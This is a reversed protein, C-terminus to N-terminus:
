RNVVGMRASDSVDDLAQVIEHPCSSTRPPSARASSRRPAHASLVAPSARGTRAALGAGRAVITVDLGDAARAVAEVVAPQQDADLYPAVFAEWAPDAARSDGVPHRRPVQRHARRPRAAVLRARGHRPVRSGPHREDEADRRLLSYEVQNSILPVADPRGALWTHAM